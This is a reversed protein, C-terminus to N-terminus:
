GDAPPLALRKRGPCLGSIRDNQLKQLSLLRLSPRQQACCTGPLLLLSSLPALSASIFLLWVWSWRLASLLLM